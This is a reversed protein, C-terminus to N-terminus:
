AAHIAFWPAILRHMPTKSQAPYIGLLDDHVTTNGESYAFSTWIDGM